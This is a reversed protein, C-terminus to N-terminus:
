TAEQADRVTKGLDTVEMWWRHGDSRGGPRLSGGCDELTVLGLDALKRAAVVEAGRVYRGDPTVPVSPPRHSPSRLLVWQRESMCLTRSPKGDTADMAGTADYYVVHVMVYGRACRPDLTARATPRHAEM